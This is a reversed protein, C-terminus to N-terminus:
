SGVGTLRPKSTECNNSPIIRKKWSSQCFIAHNESRLTHAVLLDLHAECFEVASLVQVRDTLGACPLTRQKELHNQMIQSSSVTHADDIRVAVKRFGHQGSHWLRSSLIYNQEFGRINFCRILEI